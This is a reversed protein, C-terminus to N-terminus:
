LRGLVYHVLAGLAGAGTLGGTIKLALKRKFKRDQAREDLVREALTATTTERVVRMMSEPRSRSQQMAMFTDLKGIVTANSSVVSKVDGKIEAVDKALADHKDELRGVREGMPRQARAERLAEGEYLQSIDDFSESQVPVGGRPTRRGVPSTAREDDGMISPARRQREKPTDDSDTM